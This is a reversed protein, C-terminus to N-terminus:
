VIRVDDLVVRSAPIAPIRSLSISLDQPPLRYSIEHTFVRVARAMLDITLREGPCRHGTPTDGGGQPILTYPDGTWGIFREPRFNEPEDWIRPDHNTGYLDLLVRNGEHFEVGHFVFPSAVRAAVAPFFPYFRRVEHVFPLVGDEEAVLEVTHPFEHLAVICFVLYRAVAVTPRILNLVEVAATRADLDSEAFAGLARIAPAEARRVSEIQREIWWQARARGVRGRWHRPGAGGSAEILPTIDAIRREDDLQVGAWECVARALITNLADFLVVRSVWESAAARLADEFLRGLRAIESPVLQELVLRKRARHAAGDLTQVGGRGFLTAQLRAPAAGDRVLNRSEYFLRSAEAGLMCLTRQLMIRTDFVDRGLVRSRRGIFGHGEFALTLTDDPLHTQHALFDHLGM